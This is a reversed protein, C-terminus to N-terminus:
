KILNLVFNLIEQAILPHYITLIRTSIELANKFYSTALFVKSMAVMIASKKFQCFALQLSNHGYKQLMFDIRNNSIKEVTDLQRKMMLYQELYISAREYHLDIKRTNLIYTLESVLSKLEGMEM